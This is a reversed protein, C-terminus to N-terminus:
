FVVKDSKFVPGKKCVTVFGDAGKRQVSCGLCVGIGCAMRAELSVFVPIDSKEGFAIVKQMMRSPGCSYISIIEHSISDVISPLADSVTAKAGRTGDDTVFLVKEQFTKGIEEGLTSATLEGFVLSFDMGKQKMRTALFWLPVIGMGGAVLVPYRKEDDTFGTGLPGLINIKDNETKRSIIESGRGVVKLLIKMTANECEFISYPRRLFPDYSEDIQIMVFQGPIVPVDFDPLFLEMLFVMDDIARNSLVVARYDRVKSMRTSVQKM